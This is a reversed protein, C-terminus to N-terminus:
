KDIEVDITKVEKIVKKGDCTKCKNKADIIEGTGRCDDCPGSSQTYM